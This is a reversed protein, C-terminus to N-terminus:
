VCAALSRCIDEITWIDAIPEVVARQRQVQEVYERGREDIWAALQPHCSVGDSGM